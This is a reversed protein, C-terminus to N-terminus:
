VMEVAIALITTPLPKEQKFSLTVDTRYIGSVYVAADGSYPGQFDLSEWDTGGSIVMFSYSDYLMFQTKYVRKQNTVGPDIYNERQQEKALRNTEGLCTYALGIAYSAGSPVSAVSIVGLADATVPTATFVGDSKHVVYVALGAFESITRTTESAKTYTTYHDLNWSPNQVSDFKEIYIVGGRKVAAFVVDEGNTGVCVAVDIFQGGNAPVIRSWAQVGYDPSYVLVSLVGDNRVCYIMPQWDQAFDFSRVGNDDDGQLIHEATFTLDPSSYASNMDTYIYQYIRKGGSHFFLIGREFMRAQIKSSGIRSFMQAMANLASVGQPVIFESMATGIVLNVGSAMWMITEVQDSAISFHMAHADTIIDKKQTTYYSEPKSEDALSMTITLTASATAANNMFIGNVTSEIKTNEPIKGAIALVKDGAQIKKKDEDSIGTIETSGNTITGTITWSVPKVVLTEYEVTDFYTFNTYTDGPTWVRSAWVGQPENVTGGLWIRGGWIAISGPYDNLARFPIKSIKVAFTGSFGIVTGITVTKNDDDKDVIEYMSSNYIIRDGVTIFDWKNPNPISVAASGSAFVATEGWENSKFSVEGFSWSSTDKKICRLAYYRSAFYLTDGDQAVQLEKIHAMSTYPTAIDAIFAGTNSRIRLNGNPSGSYLELLYSETDSIIFPILRVDTNNYATDVYKLGPRAMVGGQTFPLWNQLQRAGKSYFQLDMRGSLKPSLEGATFDTILKIM